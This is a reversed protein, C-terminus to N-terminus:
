VPEVAQMLHCFEKFEIEGDGNQDAQKVLATWVEESVEAHTELMAKLEESSIKGSGDKDFMNFAAELNSQSLLLHYDASALVFESYDIFGSHDVDVRALVADVAKVADELPMHQKYGELLEERSLRGDGNSDLVRFADTLEKEYEKTMLRSTMFTLFAERLKQEARFTKLQNLSLLVQESTTTHYVARKLVWPDSLCEAATLRQQTNMVLMRRILSKAENSINRWNEHAFSFKGVKVKRLIEEDTKGTFPPFGSLLIFMIVGCSWVDCKENYDMDLVEPAIYYATGLRQKLSHDESYLCSTGFDILKITSSQGDVPPSDLLLNEPKLDRHVIHHEHCYTVASLLQRMIEAATEESLHGQQTIFDFLEGGTCLESVVYYRKEDEFMEYIRIINPHNLRALIEVESIFKAKDRLAESKKKSIVKVARREGTLQNEALYVKGFQGSGLERLMQYCDSFPKKLLQVFSGSNIRLDEVRAIAAPTTTHSAKDPTLPSVIRRSSVCGM